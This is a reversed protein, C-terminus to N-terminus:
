HGSRSVVRHAVVEAHHVAAVVSGALGACVLVLLVPGASRGWAMGLVLVGIVPIALSWRPVAPTATDTM